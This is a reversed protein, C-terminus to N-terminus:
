VCGSFAVMIVPLVEVIFKTLSDLFKAWEDPTWKDAGDIVEPAAAKAKALWDAQSEDSEGPIGLRRHLARVDRWRLEHKGAVERCAGVVKRVRRGVLGVEMEDSM